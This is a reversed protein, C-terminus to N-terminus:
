ATESARKLDLRSLLERAVAPVLALCGLEAFAAERRGRGAGGAPKPGAPAAPRPKAEKLQRERPGARGDAAELLTRGRPPAAAAAASCVECRGGLFSLAECLRAATLGTGARVPLGSPTTWEDYTHVVRAAASIRSPIKSMLFMEADEACRIRKAGCHWGFSSYHFDELVLVRLRGGCRGDSCLAKLFDGICELRTGPSGDETCWPTRAGFRFPRGLRRAVAEELGAVRAAYEPKRWTSTLVTLCREGAQEVVQALRGVLVESLHSRPCSALEGCARGGHGQSRRYASVIVEVRNCMDPQLSRWESHWYSLAHEAMTSSFHMANDGPEVVVFNLVGDIDVFLM